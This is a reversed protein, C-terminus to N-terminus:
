KNAHSIKALKMEIAGFKAISKIVIPTREPTEAILLTISSDDDKIQLYKSFVGCELQITQSVRKVTFTNEKISSHGLFYIKNVGEGIQDQRLYFQLSLGDQVFGPLDLVSSEKAEGDKIVSRVAKKAAYDFHVEEYRDHKNDKTTTKIIWPYFGEADLVLDEVQSYNTLGKVLGITIMESHINYVNRGNYFGKSVVKVTQNAGYIASKVIVKYELVEGVKLSYSNPANARVLGLGSLCFLSLGLCCPIIKRFM